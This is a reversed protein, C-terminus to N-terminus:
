ANEQITALDSRKVELIELNSERRYKPNMINPCSIVRFDVNLCKLPIKRPGGM